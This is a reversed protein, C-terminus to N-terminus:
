GRPCRVAAMAKSLDWSTRCRQGHHHTAAKPAALDRKAFLPPSVASNMTITALVAALGAAALMYVVGRRFLYSGQSAIAIPQAAAASSSSSSSSVLLVPEPMSGFMKAGDRRNPHYHTHTLQLSNSLPTNLASMQRRCKRRAVILPHRSSAGPPSTTKSGGQKTKADGKKDHSARTPVSPFLILLMHAIHRPPPLADVYPSDTAALFCHVACKFFPSARLSKGSM